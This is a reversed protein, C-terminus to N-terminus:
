PIPGLRWTTLHSTSTPCPHVREKCVAHSLGLIGVALDVVPPLMTRLLARYTQM